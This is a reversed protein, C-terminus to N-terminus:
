TTGLKALLDRALSTRGDATGGYYADDFNGGSFGQPDFPESEDDSWTEREAIPKLYARLEDFTM